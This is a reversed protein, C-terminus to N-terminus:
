LQGTEILALLYLAGLSIACVTFFAVGEIIITAKGKQELEEKLMQKLSM